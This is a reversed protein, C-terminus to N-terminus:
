MALRSQPQYSIRHLASKFRKNAPNSPDILSRKVYQSELDALFERTREQKVFTSVDECFTYEYFKASWPERVEDIRDFETLQPWFWAPRSIWDDKKFRYPELSKYRIGLRNIAGPQTTKNWSSVLNPDGTLLSPFRTVLHPADVLVNQGPLVHRELWKWVRAAAVRRTGEESFPKDKRQYGNSSNRAFDLFSIAKLQKTSDRFKSSIYDSADSSLYAWAESLGLFDIIKDDLRLEKTRKEFSAVLTPVVPWYWPRFGSWDDEWLGRNGLHSSGINVDAFSEPHGSLTLDFYNDGFQNLGIIPGCGSYCRALYAIGEGTFYRDVDLDILDYDIILVDTNDFLSGDLKGERHSKSRASKRRKELESIGDIIESNTPCHIEFNARVYKISKLADAWRDERRKEDDCILIRRKKTM